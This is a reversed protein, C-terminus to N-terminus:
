CRSLLGVGSHFLNHTCELDDDGGENMAENGKSVNTHHIYFKFKDVNDSIIQLCFMM